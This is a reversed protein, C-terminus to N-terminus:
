TYMTTTTTHFTERSDNASWDSLARVWFPVHWAHFEDLSESQKGESKCLIGKMQVNLSLLTVCLSAALKM